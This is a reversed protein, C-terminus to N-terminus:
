NREDKVELIFWYNGDSIRTHITGSVGNQTITKNYLDVFQSETIKTLDYKKLTDYLKSKSTKVKSEDKNRSM